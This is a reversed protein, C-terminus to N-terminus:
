KFHIIVKPNPLIYDKMEFKQCCYFKLPFNLDISTNVTDSVNLTPNCEYDYINNTKSLM